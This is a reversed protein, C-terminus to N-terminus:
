MKIEFRASIIRSIKVNGSVRSMRVGNWVPLRTVFDTGTEPKATVWLSDFDLYVDPEGIAGPFIKLFENPLRQELCVMFETNHQIGKTGSREVMLRPTPMKQTAIVPQGIRGFSVGGGVADVNITTGTGNFVRIGIELYHDAVLKDANFHMEGVYLGAPDFGIRGSRGRLWYEGWLACAVGVVFGTVGLFWKTQIIEASAGWMDFLWTMAPGMSKVLYQDHGEAKAWETVNAQILAGLVGSVFVVAFAAAVWRRITAGNM